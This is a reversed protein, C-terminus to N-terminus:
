QNLNLIKGTLNDGVEIEIVQVNEVKRVDKSSIGSFHSIIQKIWGNHSILLINEDKHQTYLQSVFDLARTKLEAVSEGNEPKRNDWDGSLSDWDVSKNHQGQFVGLHRERLKETLTLLTHPHFEKILEAMYACRSLDSSYIHSFIYDKLVLATEKAQVKGKPTLLGDYQGTLTGTLNQETEGHRVIYLKM